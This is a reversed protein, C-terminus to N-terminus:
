SQIKGFQQTQTMALLTSWSMRRRWPSQKRVLIELLPRPRLLIKSIGDVPPRMELVMQYQLFHDNHLTALRLHRPM